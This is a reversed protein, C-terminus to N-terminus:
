VIVRNKRARAHVRFWDRIVINIANRVQQTVERLRACTVHMLVREGEMESVGECEGAHVDRARTYACEIVWEGVNTNVVACM